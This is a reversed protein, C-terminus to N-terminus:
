KTFILGFHYNGAKFENALNLGLQNAHQILSKPDVKRDNSPAFSSNTDSWDVVLLRGGNKLLRTAEGMIEYHKNSQFLVNVLMVADLSQENIQTAGIIEINSWVTKINNLGSMRAKSEIESLANKLIDVAYVQGQDGVLRAAQISFLGGGAGLDAVMNGIKLQLFDRLIAGSDLLESRGYVQQQNPAPTPRVIDEVEQTPIKAQNLITTNSENDPVGQNAIQNATLNNNPLTNDM